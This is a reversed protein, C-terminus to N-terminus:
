KGNGWERKWIGLCVWLVLPDNKWRLASKNGAQALRENIHEVSLGTLQEVSFYVETEDHEDDGNM